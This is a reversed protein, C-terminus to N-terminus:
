QNETEYCLEAGKTIPHSILMPIWSKLDQSHEVMQMPL